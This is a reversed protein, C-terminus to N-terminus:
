VLVSSFCKRLHSVARDHSLWCFYKAQTLNLRPDNLVDQIEKLGAIRVPSYKYFHYIQDIIDKVNKLYPIENAAQGCALALSHAICHSSDLFPIKDKLLRSVGGRTGLMVSAGDSGLGCLRHLVDLQLDGCLKMVTDSITIARGDHLEVICLFSTKIGGEAVYGGYVVLEKTVSVDTTEDISLCFFLPSKQLHSVIPDAVTEGLCQVVEQMCHESRYHANGGLQLDSLYSAGLSKGLELLPAFNTTHAIERKNLFYMCKLAGIFAKRQASVVRQFAMAIGGDRKSSCLDAEM